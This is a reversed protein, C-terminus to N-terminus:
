KKLELRLAELSKNVEIIFMGLSVMLSLLCLLFLGIILLDASVKALATLFLSAILLAGCLASMSALIISLRILGARQWLIDLQAQLTDKKGPPATEAEESLERARDITRGLRNTMTLLLLGTGSILIVPGISIQLISVLDM